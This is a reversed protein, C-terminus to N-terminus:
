EHVWEEESVRENKNALRALDFLLSSLRNLYRLAEPNISEVRALVAVRREARRCVARTVHLGAGVVSGTPLVFRRLPKLEGHIEELAKELKSVHHKEIRPIKASVLEAALDGGLVFLDSQVTRLTDDIRPDKAWARVLGIQSNLEDVAGYAEVRPNEKGVRSGGYLSTEGKDGTGTYGKM